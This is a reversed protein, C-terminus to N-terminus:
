HGSDADVAGEEAFRRGSRAREGKMARGEPPLTLRAGSAQLARERTPRETSRGPHPLYIVAVGSRTTRKEHAGSM